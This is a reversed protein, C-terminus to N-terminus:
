DPLLDDLEADDADNSSLAGGLCLHTPANARVFAAHENRDPSVRGTALEQVLTGLCITNRELGQAPADVRHAREVNPNIAACRASLQTCAVHTTPLASEVARVIEPRPTRHKGRGLSFVVTSAGVSRCLRDAFKANDGQPVHGGHHPFVLLEAGLDVACRELDALGVADLDGTLLARSVNDHTVRVVASLSNSSISRGGHEPLEKGGPGSLALTHSPAVVKVQTAGFTITPYDPGLNRSVQLQYREKAVAVARRFDNWTKNDKTADPNVLVTRVVFREDLLISTVGQVHDADAHSVIITDVATIKRSLLLEVLILGLPADVIVVGDAAHIVASNGHGVDLICLEPLAM